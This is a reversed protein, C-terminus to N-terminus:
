EKVQALLIKELRELRVKMRIAERIYESRDPYGLREVIRDIEKLLKEPIQISISRLRGM